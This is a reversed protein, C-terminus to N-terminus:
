RKKELHSDRKNTTGTGDPISGLLLCVLSPSLSKPPVPSHASANGGPLHVKRCPWGQGAQPALCTRRVQPKGGLVCM